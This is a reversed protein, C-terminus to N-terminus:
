TLLSRRICTGLDDGVLALSEHRIPPGESDQNELHNVTRGGEVVSVVLLHELVDDVPFKEEVVGLDLGRIFALVEDVREQLLVRGFSDAGLSFGFDLVVRPELIDVPFAYEGFLYM